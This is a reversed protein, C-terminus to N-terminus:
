AHDRSLMMFHDLPAILAVPHAEERIAIAIVRCCFGTTGSWYQIRTHPYTTPRSRTPLGASSHLDRHRHGIGASLASHVTHKGFSALCRQKLEGM